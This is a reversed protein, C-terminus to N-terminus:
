TEVAEKEVSVETTVEPLQKRIREEAAREAEELIKEAEANATELNMSLGSTQNTSSVIDTLLGGINELERNAEPFVGSMGVRINNLVTAAPAILTVIDGLESVTNLRMSVSELALKAHMLMKEVKRIEALESALVNARSVDRESLSKVVRKFLTADRKEFRKLANDLKQVQIDVRRIVSTIQRKLGRPPKTVSKIRDTLSPQHEKEKWGYIFKKSL